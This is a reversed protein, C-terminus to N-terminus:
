NSLTSNSVHDGWHKWSKALEAFLIDSPGLDLTKNSTVYKSPLYTLFLPPGLLCPKYSHKALRPHSCLV